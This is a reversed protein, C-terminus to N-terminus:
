RSLAKYRCEMKSSPVVWLTEESGKHIGPASKPPPAIPVSAGLLRNWAGMAGLEVKELVWSEPETDDLKVLSEACM